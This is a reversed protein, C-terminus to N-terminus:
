LTIMYVHKIVLTQSGRKLKRQLCHFLVSCNLWVSLRECTESVTARHLDEKVCYEVAAPSKVETSVEPVLFDILNGSYFNM